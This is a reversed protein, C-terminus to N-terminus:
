SLITSYDQTQASNPRLSEKVAPFESVLLLLALKTTVDLTPFYKYDVNGFAIKLQKLGPSENRDTSYRRDVFVGIGVSM